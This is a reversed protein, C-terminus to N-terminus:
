AAAGQQASPDAKLGLVIAARHAKGRYGHLRGRLVDVLIPRPVKHVRALEAVNVGNARIWAHATEATQPYPVRTPMTSAVAAQDKPKM